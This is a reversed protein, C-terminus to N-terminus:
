KKKEPLINIHLPPTHPNVRRRQVEPRNPAATLWEMFEDAAGLETSLPRFAEMPGRCDALVGLLAAESQGLERM